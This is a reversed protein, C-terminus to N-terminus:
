KLGFEFEFEFVFDFQITLDKIRFILNTKFKCSKRTGLERFIVPSSLFSSFFMNEGECGWKREAAVEDQHLEYVWKDIM